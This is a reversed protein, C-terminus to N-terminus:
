RDHRSRTHDGLSARREQPDGATKTWLRALRITFMDYSDYIQDDEEEGTDLEGHIGM